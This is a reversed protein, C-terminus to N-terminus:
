SAILLKRQHMDEARIRTWEFQPGQGSNTVNTVLLGHVSADAKPGFERVMLATVLIDKSEEVLWELGNLTDFNPDVRIHQPWYKNGLTGRKEVFAGPRVRCQFVLQAWRQDDLEFFQAYVPFAAYEVAPSLYITRKTSSHAQGHAISVGASGPRQLGRLLIPVINRSSTGHYAVCWDKYKHFDQIQISYRLWGVPKFYHQGGRKGYHIFRGKNAFARSHEPTFTMSNTSLRELLLPLAAGVDHQALVKGLLRALHRHAETAASLLALEMKETSGLSSGKRLMAARERLLSLDGSKIGREELASCIGEIEAPDMSVLAKNREATDNREATNAPVSNLVQRLFGCATMKDAVVDPTFDRLWADCAVVAKIGHRVPLEQSFARQFYCWM